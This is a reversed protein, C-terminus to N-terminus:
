VTKGNIVFKAVDLTEENILENILSCQYALQVKITIPDIDDAFKYFYRKIDMGIEPMSPFVGPKGFLIILITRALAEEDKLRKPNNFNNLGFDAERLPTEM